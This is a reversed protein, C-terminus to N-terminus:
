AVRIGYSTYEIGMQKLTNKFSEVAQSETLAQVEWEQVQGSKYTARIVYWKKFLM